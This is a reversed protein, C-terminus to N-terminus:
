KIVAFKGSELPEGSVDITYLYMGESLGQVSIENVTKDLMTSSILQNFVNYIRFRAQVGEDLTSEVYLVDKAPNPYVKAPNWDIPTFKGKVKVKKCVSESCKSLGNQGTVTLCVNYTGAFVYTHSPNQINSVPSGDGFNWSWGTITTGFLGTSLDTFQVTKPSLSIQNSTFNPNINCLPILIPCGNVTRCYTNTCTDIGNTATVTLCVNFPGSPSFSYTHTVNQGSATNGDGFNWNWSLIKICSDAVAAGSFTKKCGKGTFTFSPVTVCPCCDEVYVTITLTDKCGNVTDSVIVSYTTTVSPNVTINATNAGTSWLYSNGGAASLVVSDGKCLVSDSSTVAPAFDECCDEVYISIIQQVTKIEQMTDVGNPSFCIHITLTYTTTVTPSITPYHCDDCSLGASPAWEYGCIIEGRTTAYSIIGVQATDGACITDCTQVVVMVSDTGTCGLSDTVTVTYVATGSPSVTISSTTEGTSWQYSVGGSATIVSSTGSCITDPSATANAVFGACCDVLVEVTINLTDTCGNVTDSVIVSYTTIMTSPVVTISATTEGTIWLYSNGGTASLVVSDGKCVLTDSASVAPSFDLCSDCFETVTLTETVVCGTSSQTVTLTVSGPLSTWNVDVNDNNNFGSITGGSVSWNYTLGPSANTSYNFIGTQSNAPCVTSPGSLVADFGITITKSIVITGNITLTVTYTGNAAYTHVPNQLASTNGDGFDWSYSTGCSASNFTVTTCLSISYNFDFTVQSPILADIMNPISRGGSRGGLSVSLPSFGCENLANINYSDPQNIVSLFTKGYSGIYIKGDPGLQYEAFENQAYGSTYVVNVNFNYIDLQLISNTANGMDYSQYYLLTSNPSFSLANGSGDMPVDYYFNLAGTTKNFQLLRVDGGFSTAIYGGDPSAAFTGLFTGASYPMTHTVTSVPGASTILTVNITENGPIRDSTFLWYDTGNCHPIATMGEKMLQTGSPLSVILNKQGAIVAGNGGDLTMDIESYRLPDTVSGSEFAPVTFVYYHGPTQPKPIIITGQYGSGHGMLGSGNLMVVHNKNWINEGNTYFLLNGNADSISAAAEDTNNQSNLAFVPTGTAFNLAATGGFYWNGQTSVIPTCSSVFVQQSSSVTQTGNTVTLTVTVPSGATYIHTVPNGSATNGDGFDWSYTAGANSIGTFTVTTNICPNYNDAAFSANLGGTCQVGTYVLNPSSILTSRLLNLTGTMRNAQGATFSNRCNDDTYDMHNNLLDPLDPTETCSNLIGSPCGTNANAVPPTDCVKDGTTMCDASTMGSCGGQFTHYLYLYHGVEHALIKGQDYNPLLNTCACTAVDGFVDYRMVIGEMNVPVTGPFRAYGAVGSGNDINGVVWIRLYKDGELASLNKLTSEQSIYHDTLTSQIRFIGPTSGTFNTGGQKTALCFEIGEASFSNNLTNIQSMVQQDTINEPGNNHVIYVVVPIIYNVSSSSKSFSSTNTKIFNDSYSKIQKDQDDLRKKIVPDKLSENLLIDSNCFPAPPKKKSQATLVQFSLVFCFSVILNKLTFFNKM